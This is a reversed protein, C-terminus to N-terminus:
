NSVLRAPEELVWVGWGSHFHNSEYGNQQLFLQFHKKFTANIILVSFQYYFVQIKEDATQDFLLANTEPVLAISNLEWAPWISAINGVIQRQQLM